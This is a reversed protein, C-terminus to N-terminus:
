DQFCCKGDISPDALSFSPLSCNVSSETPSSKTVLEIVGLDSQNQLVISKRYDLEISSSSTFLSSSTPSLSTSNRFSQRAFVNSSESQTLSSSSALSSSPTHYKLELINNEDDFCHIKSRDQVTLSQPPKTLTMSISLKSLAITTASNDGHNLSFSSHSKEEVLLTKPAFCDQFVRFYNLEEDSTNAM